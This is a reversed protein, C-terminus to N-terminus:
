WQLKALSAKAEDIVELPYSIYTVYLLTDFATKDGLEGLASILALVVSKAPMESNEVKGNCESLMDTLSQALEHSPVRVSSQIMEIFDSENLTGEDYAKKALVITSNVVNAAHSWKHETLVAHAEKQFRIFAKQADTGNAKLSEANNIAILLANEAIDCLSNESNKSSNKLLSFYREFEIINSISFIKIVDSFSDESLSVLAEDTSKQYEPWLNAHWISYILSLSEENGIKGIMVIASELVNEAKEGTKYATSLYDNLFDVTLETNENSYLSLKEMAASRVRKDTFLKFIAMLKESIKQQEKKKVKKIKANESPFAHISAVTLNIFEEDSSLISANEISFDLGKQAVSVREKDTLNQLIEIKESISGKVFFKENQSAAFLASYFSFILPILFVIKKM